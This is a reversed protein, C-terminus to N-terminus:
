GHCAGVPPPCAPMPRGNMTSPGGRREIKQQRTVGIRRSDGRGVAVAHCLGSM